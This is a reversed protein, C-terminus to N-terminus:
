CSYRRLYQSKNCCSALFSRDASSCNDIQVQNRAKSEWLLYLLIVSPVFIRQEVKQERLSIPVDGFTGSHFIAALHLPNVYMSFFRGCKRMRRGKRCLYLKDTGAHLTNWFEGYQSTAILQLLYIVM